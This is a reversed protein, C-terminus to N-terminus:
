ATMVILFRTKRNRRVDRYKRPTKQGRAPAPSPTREPEDVDLIDDQQCKTCPSSARACRTSPLNWLPVTTRMKSITMSTRRQSPSPFRFRHNASRGPLRRDAPHYRRDQQHARHLAHNRASVTNLKATMMTTAIPPPTRTRRQSKAWNRSAPNRRCWPM